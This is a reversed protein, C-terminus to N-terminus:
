RRRNKTKLGPASAYIDLNQRDSRLLFGHFGKSKFRRDPQHVAVQFQHECASTRSIGDLAVHRPIFEFHPPGARSRSQSLNMKADSRGPHQAIGSVDAIFHVFRMATMPICRPATPQQLGEGQSMSQVSHPQSDIRLVEGRLLGAFDDTRTVDLSDTDGLIVLHVLAAGAIATTVTKGQLLRPHVAIMSGRNERGAAQM